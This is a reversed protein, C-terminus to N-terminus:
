WELAQPLQEFIRKWAPYESHQLKIATWVSLHRHNVIEARCNQILDERIQSLSRDWDFDPEHIKAKLADINPLELHFLLLKFADLLSKYTTKRAMLLWDRRNLELTDLTFKAKKHNRTGEEDLIVFEFSTLEVLVLDNPNEERPHIFVGDKSLPAQNQRLRHVNGEADFVAFKALKHGSNCQKCSLLYNRWDFTLKPFHSKPYIHEIDKAEGYECYQCVLDNRTLEKLWDRVGEFTAAGAGTNSKSDWLARAHRIQEFREASEPLLESSLAELAVRIQDSPPDSPLHIM